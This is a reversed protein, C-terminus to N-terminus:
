RLSSKNLIFRNIIPTASAVISSNTPTFLASFQTSGRTTPKFACTVTIPPTGSARKSICGGIRKGRNFFTVKGLYDVVTSINVSVGKYLTTPVTLSLSLSASSNNTITLPSIAALQNGALDTWRGSVGNSPNYAFSVVAGAPITRNVSVQLQTASGGTSGVTLAPGGDSITYLNEGVGSKTMTESATLFLTSGSSDLYINSITPATSDMTVTNVLPTSVNNMSDVAYLNYLGDQLGSTTLITNTGTSSISVSNRQNVPAGTISALNSVSVTSKVLYVTGIENSRVTLTDGNKAFSKIDMRSVTPATTDALPVVPINAFIQLRFYSPTPCSGASGGNACFTWDPHTGSNQGYGVEPSGGYDHRNWAFVPKLNTMDHIQFSGYSGDSNWSDDYDYNTGNGAPSLGNTGTGYNRPWIELRGSFGKGNTVSPSNSYVNLDSVNAQVFYAYPSNVSPIMLSSVSPNFGGRSNTNTGDPWKYADVEAFRSVGSITTDLRYRIRSFTENRLTTYPDSLGVGYGSEYIPNGSSNRLPSTTGYLKTWPYGYVGTGSNTIAAVRFYHAVTSLGLATYSMQASTLSAMQTWTTGNTSKEVSYGTIGSGVDTSINWTLYVGGQVPTAEISTPASAYGSTGSITLANTLPSASFISTTLVIIAFLVKTRM